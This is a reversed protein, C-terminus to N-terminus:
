HIQTMVTNTQMQRNYLLLLLLLVVIQIAGYCVRLYFCPRRVFTCLIDLIVHVHIKVVNKITMFYIPMQILFIQNSKKPIIQM